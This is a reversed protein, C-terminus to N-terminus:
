KSGAIIEGIPDNVWRAPRSNVRSSPRSSPKNPEAKTPKGGLADGYIFGSVPWRTTGLKGSPSYWVQVESWDNQASVDIAQVDREIMGPQSWNAHRLLVTRSDIVRSVAAVHGLQSNAHPSFAMVAGERPRRGRSYRGEAQNWWTHADGYIQIGTVERAYPVCQLFAPLERGGGSGDTDISSRSQVPASLVTATICVISSIMVRM